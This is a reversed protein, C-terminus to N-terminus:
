DRTAGHAARHVEACTERAAVLRGRLAHLRWSISRARSPARSTVPADPPKAQAIVAHASLEAGAALDDLVGELHSFALALDSGSGPHRAAGRFLRAAEALAGARSALPVDPGAPHPPAPPRAPPLAPPWTRATTTPRAETM